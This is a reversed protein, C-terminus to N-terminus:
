RYLFALTSFGILGIGIATRTLPALAEPDRQLKEILNPIM